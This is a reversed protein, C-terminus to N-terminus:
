EEGGGRMGEEKEGRREKRGKCDEEGRRGKRGEIMKGERRGIKQEEEKM